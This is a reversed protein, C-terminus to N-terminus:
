DYGFLFLSALSSVTLSFTNVFCANDLLWCVRQAYVGLGSNTLSTM